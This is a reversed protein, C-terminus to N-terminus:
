DPKVISLKTKPKPTVESKEKEKANKMTTSLKVTRREGTRSNLVDVEPDIGMDILDKYLRSKEKEISNFYLVKTDLDYQKLTEDELDKIIKQQKDSLKHIRKYIYVVQGTIMAVKFEKRRYKRYQKIALVLGFIALISVGGMAIYYVM